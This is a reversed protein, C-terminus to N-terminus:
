LLSESNWLDIGSREANLATSSMSIAPNSLQVQCQQREPLVEEAIEQGPLILSSCRGLGVRVWLPAPPYAPYPLLCPLLPPSLRLSLLSLALALRAAVSGSHLPSVASSRGQNLSPFSAPHRPGLLSQQAPPTRTSGSGSSHHSSLPSNRPM